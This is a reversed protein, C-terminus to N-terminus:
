SSSDETLWLARIASVGQAGSLWARETDSRTVGGLAYVPLTAQSVINEFEEWGLPQAEPHTATKQVPSLVAFDLGLEGARQIEEYDHCSAAVLYQDPLPRSSLSMLESANLQLGDAQLQEVLEPDSNLLIRAGANRCVEVVQRALSEFQDASLGKQRYQVLSIGNALAAQLQRIFEAEDEGVAPTILYHSPLQCARIIPLNAEPFHYTDLQQKSVWQVPQGEKGHPQGQWETIEWVDLLVSKEPYHHPVQILPRYRMVQIGIEESLERVLAQERSEGTDLKGGPFEWLGGQHVHDPRKAILINHSSDRIVAAVVHIM